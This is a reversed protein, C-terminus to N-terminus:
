LARICRGLIEVWSEAHARFQSEWTRRQRRRAARKNKYLFITGPYSLLQSDKNSINNTGVRPYDSSAPFHEPPLFALGHLGNPPNRWSSAFPLLDPVRCLGRAGKWATLNEEKERGGSKPKEPPLRSCPLNWKSIHLDVPSGRPLSGHRPAKRTRTQIGDRTGPKTCEDKSAVAVVM